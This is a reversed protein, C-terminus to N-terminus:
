PLSVRLAAWEGDLRVEVAGFRSYAGDLLQVDEVLLGSLILTAGPTCLARLEDAREMLLPAMLNALVVDFRGRRLARGGDGQVVALSVDNLRAHTACSATAEPDFDVAVSTTAGLRRAAVALIGTGAGIDLM